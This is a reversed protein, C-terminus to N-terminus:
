EKAPPSPAKEPLKATATAPEKTATKQEEKAPSPSPPRLAVTALTVTAAALIVTLIAYVLGPAIQWQTQGGGIASARTRVSAGHPQSFEMATRQFAYVIALGLGAIILIIAALANHFLACVLAAMAAVALAAQLGLKRTQLDPLGPSPPGLVADAITAIYGLGIWVGAAINRLVAWLGAALAYIAAAIALAIVLAAGSILWNGARSPSWRLTPSWIAISTDPPLGSVVCFVMAAIALAFAVGTYVAKHV